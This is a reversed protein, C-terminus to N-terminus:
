RIAEGESLTISIVTEIRAKSHPGSISSEYNGSGNHTFKAFFLSKVLSTIRSDRKMNTDRAVGSSTQGVLPSVDFKSVDNAWLQLGELLPKPLDAHASPSDMTVAITCLVSTKSSTSRTTSASRSVHIQLPLPHVSTSAPSTSGDCRDSDSAFEDESCLSGISLVISAMEQGHLSTAVVLRECEATFLPQQPPSKQVASIMGAASIKESSTGNSINLDHLDLIIAGSRPAQEAPPPCRIQLRIMSLNVAIKLRQWPKPLRFQLHFHHVLIVLSSKPGVKDSQPGQPSSGTEGHSGQGANMRHGAVEDLFYLANDGLALGLDVFIHLPVVDIEFYDDLGGGNVQGKESSTWTLKANAVISTAHTTEPGDATGFKSAFGSSSPL